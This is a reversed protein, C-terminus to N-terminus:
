NPNPSAATVTAHHVPHLGQDLGLPPLASTPSLWPEEPPRTGDTGVNAWLPPEIGSKSVRFRRTCSGHPDWVIM